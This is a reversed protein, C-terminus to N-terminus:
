GGPRIEMRLFKMYSAVFCVVLGLAIAVINAWSAAVGQSLTLSRFPSGGGGFVVSSTQAVGLVASATDSYLNTPSIKSITSQIVSRSQMLARFESTQQPNQGGPTTNNGPLSPTFTIPVMANAVLSAIISILIVCTLM